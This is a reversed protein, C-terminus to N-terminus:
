RGGGTGQAPSEERQASMSRRGASRRFGARDAAL